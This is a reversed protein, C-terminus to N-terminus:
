RSSMLTMPQPGYEVQVKGMIGRINGGGGGLNQM